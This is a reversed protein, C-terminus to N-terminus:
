ECVINICILSYTHSSQSVCTSLHSSSFVVKNLSQVENELCSIEKRLSLVEDEKAKLLMELQSANRERGTSLSEVDSKQGTIFCRMRSIEEALRSKLEQNDRKLQDLEKQMRELDTDKSKSRNEIQNLESCKQSYGDSLVDLESHLAYAQSRRMSEVAEGKSGHGENVVRSMEELHAAKLKEM